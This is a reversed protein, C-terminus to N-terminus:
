TKPTRPLAEELVPFVGIKGSPFYPQLMISNKGIRDSTDRYANKLGEFHRFRENKTYTAGEPIPKKSEIDNINAADFLANIIRKYDIDDVVIMIKSM